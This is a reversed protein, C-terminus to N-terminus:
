FDGGEGGDYGGRNRGGRKKKQNIRYNFTLLFQRSRWQFESYSTLNPLDVESRRKRSNLLDKASLTLTGKGKLIDKSLGTDISYMALRRGQTTVRPARYRLSTQFDINGFITMKNNLRSSWTLADSELIRGEYEGETIARYFDFNGSVKWWKYFDYSLSFEIGYANQTSLNIPLRNTTGDGIDTNVREIVGTRRRYYLSTLLSGKEFYRLYATEFSNTYEPNLDPNGSFLNRPDSYTLFPLLYWFRPRSIRRSYSLQVQNRKDLEYSFNVSPFWDLYERPNRENTEVLNTEIDSYETRLGFQYSLADWKNSYIAYAAYINETYQLANDLEPVILWDIGEEKQEVQYDNDISRLNAKLGTEFRSKKSLPRVYDTQFLINTEGEVNSSRENLTPNGNLIGNEFVSDELDEQGLYKADFTM